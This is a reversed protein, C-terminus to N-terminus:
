VLILINENNLKVNIWLHRSWFEVYVINPFFQWVFYFKILSVCINTWLCTNTGIVNVWSHWIWFTNHWVNFIPVVAILGLTWQLMISTILQLENPPDISRKSLMDCNCGFLLNCECHHELKYLAFGVTNLVPFPGLCQDCLHIHLGKFFPISSWWSCFYPSTSFFSFGFIAQLTNAVRSCWELFKGLWILPQCLSGTHWDSAMISWSILQYIYEYSVEFSDFDRQNFFQLLFWGHIYSIGLWFVHGSSDCRLAIQMTEDVREILSDIRPHWATSTILKTDDEYFIALNALLALNATLCLSKHFMMLDIDIILLSHWQKTLLSTKHWSLFHAM